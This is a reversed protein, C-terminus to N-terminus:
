GKWFVCFDPFSPFILPDQPGSTCMADYAEAAKEGREGEGESGRERERGCVCLSQTDHYMHQHIQNCTAMVYCIYVDLWKLM